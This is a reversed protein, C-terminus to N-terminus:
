RGCVFNAFTINKCTDTQGCPPNHCPPMCPLPMAPTHTDPPMCPPPCAHCPNHIAPPCAYHPWAYCPAHIAPPWTHCPVQTGSVVLHPWHAPPVCGVPICEQKAFHYWFYLKSCAVHRHCPDKFPYNYYLQLNHLETRSEFRRCYFYLYECFLIWHKCFNLYLHVSNKLFTQFDSM